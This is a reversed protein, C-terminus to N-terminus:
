KITRIYWGDNYIKISDLKDTSYIYLTDIDYMWEISTQQWNKYDIIVTRILLFIIVAFFLTVIVYFKDVKM